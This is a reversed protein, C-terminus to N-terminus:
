RAVHLRPHRGPQSWCSDQMHGTTILYVCARVRNAMPVHRLPHQAFPFFMTPFVSAPPVSRMWHCTNKSFSVRGFNPTPANTIACVRGRQRAPLTGVAGSSRGATTRTLLRMAHSCCRRICSLRNAHQCKPRAIDCICLM